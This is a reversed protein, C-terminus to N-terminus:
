KLDKLENLHIKPDHCTHEICENINKQCISNKCADQEAEKRTAGSGIGYVREPNTTNKNRVSSVLSVSVTFKKDKHDKGSEVIKYIPLEFNNVQTYRMLLDKYNDNDAILSEYNVHNALIDRIFKDASVFGLDIYIAGILSEFVDELLHDNPTGNSCLIHKELGLKRALVCCNTGRVIKTRLKTLFGEDKNPYKNYLIDAVVLNLVADGVFELRDFTKRMYSPIDVAPRTSLLKHFSKHVFAQRYINIDIPRMKIIAQVDSYNLHAKTFDYQEIPVKKNSGSGTLMNNNNYEM